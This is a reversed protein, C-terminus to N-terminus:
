QCQRVTQWRFYRGNCPAIETWLVEKGGATSCINSCSRFWFLFVLFFFRSFSFLVFVFIAFYFKPIDCPMFWFWGSKRFHVLVTCTCHRREARSCACQMSDLRQRHIQQLSKTINILNHAWLLLMHSHASRSRQQANSGDNSPNRAASARGNWHMELLHVYM